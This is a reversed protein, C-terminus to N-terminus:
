QLGVVETGRKEQSVEVKEKGKEAAAAKKKEPQQNKETGAEEAAAREEGATRIDNTTTAIIGSIVDQCYKKIDDRSSVAMVENLVNVAPPTGVKGLEQIAKKQTETDKGWKADQRLEWLRQEEPSSSSPSSSM